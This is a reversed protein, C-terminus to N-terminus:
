TLGLMGARVNEPANEGIYMRLYIQYALESKISRKSGNFVVPVGNNEATWGVGPEWDLNIVDGRQVKNLSAYAAGIEGFPGTLRRFEDETAVMKFDTQFIRSITSAAFDRLLILQIRRPGDLKYVDEPNSTKKPMYLSTLDSKFYGRKRVASGNLVLKQGAVVCTSDVKYGELTVSKQAMAPMAWPAFVGAAAGMMLQRRLSNIEEPQKNEDQM